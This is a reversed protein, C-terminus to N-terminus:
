GIFATPHLARPEYVVTLREGRNCRIMEDYSADDNIELNQCRICIIQFGPRHLVAWLSAFTTHSVATDSVNPTEYYPMSGLPRLVYRIKSEM